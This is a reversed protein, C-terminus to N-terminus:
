NSIKLFVKLRLILCVSIRLFLLIRELNSHMSTESKSKDCVYVCMRVYVRACVGRGREKELKESKVSCQADNPNIDSIGEACRVRADIKYCYTSKINKKHKSNYKGLCM